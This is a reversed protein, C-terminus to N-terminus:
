HKVEREKSQDPQIAITVNEEELIAKYTSLTKNLLVHTVNYGLKALSRSIGINSKENNINTLSWFLIRKGKRFDHNNDLSKVWGITVLLAVILHKINM